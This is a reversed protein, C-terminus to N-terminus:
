GTLVIYSTVALSWIDASFGSYGEESIIEPALYVPTGIHEFITKDKDMKWSIGFDCLKLTGQSSLLINDLKIDRHLIDESHM